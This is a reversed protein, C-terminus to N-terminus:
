LANPTTSEDATARHPISQADGLTGYYAKLKNRMPVYQDLVTIDSRVERSVNFTPETRLSSELDWIQIGTKLTM